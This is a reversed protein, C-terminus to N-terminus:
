EKWNRFITTSEAPEGLTGVNNKIYDIYSKLCNGDNKSPLVVIFHDLFDYQQTSFRYSRVSVILNVRRAHM